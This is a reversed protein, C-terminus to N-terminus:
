PTLVGTLISAAGVLVTVVDEESQVEVSEVEPGEDFWQRTRYGAAGIKTRRLTLFAGQYMLSPPEVIMVTITDSWVDSNNDAQGENAINQVCLPVVPKMGWLMSPLEIVQAAEGYTIQAKALLWNVLANRCNVSIKMVNPYKGVARRVVERRADIDMKPNIPTAGAPPGDWYAAAGTNSITGTAQVLTATRIEGDLKCIQGLIETGRVRVNLPAAQNDIIDQPLEAHWKRPVTKYDVDTYDFSVKTSLAGSRAEGRVAKLHETGGKFIEGKRNLVLAAPAFENAVFAGQGCQVLVNTLVESKTINKICPPM